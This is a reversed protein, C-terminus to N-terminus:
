SWERRLRREYDLGDDARDRWIGFADERERLEWKALYETVARRIVEARSLRNRRCVEALRRVQEDPLDIITRM